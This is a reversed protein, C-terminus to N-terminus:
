IIRSDFLSLSHGTMLLKSKIQRKSCILHLEITIKSTNEQNYDCNSQSFNKYCDLNSPYKFIYETQSNNLSFVYEKTKRYGYFYENEKNESDVINKSLIGNCIFWVLFILMPIIPIMWDPMKNESNHVGYGIFFISFVAVLLFTSLIKFVKNDRNNKNIAYLGVQRFWITYFPFFLGFLLFTKIPSLNVIWKTLKDTKIANM